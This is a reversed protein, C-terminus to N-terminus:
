RRLGAFIDPWRDVPLLHGASPVLHLTADPLREALRRAFEPAVMTDDLGQWVDVPVDIDAETFGWASSYTVYDQTIGRAGPRAAERYADVLRRAGGGREIEGREVPGLAHLSARAGLRPLAGFFAGVAAFVLTAQRPRQRCLRTLRRDSPVLLAFEDRLSLDTTGALLAVSRVRDPMAYACALAYV